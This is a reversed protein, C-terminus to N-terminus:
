PKQAPVTSLQKVRAEEKEQLSKNQDAQSPVGTARRLADSILTRDYPEQTWVHEPSGISQTGYIQKQGIEMLYRDLTAAAIWSAARNGKTASIVALSHAKLYDNSTNGHQFIFAARYFDEASRLKGADLLKQTAARRLADEKAVVEWDVDQPSQRIAQDADFLAKVEPSDPWDDDLKIPQGAPLNTELIATRSVRVLKIDDMPAGEVTLSAVDATVPKITLPTTAFLSPSTKSPQFRLEDKAGGNDIINLKDCKPEKALADAYIVRDSTITIGGMRCHEAERGGTMNHVDIISVIKGEAKIAWRGELSAFSQGFAPVALSILLPLLAIRNM